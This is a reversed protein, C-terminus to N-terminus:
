DPQGIGRIFVNVTNSSGRGQVINLNPVAGQLGDINNAQLDRLQEEGFASVAVPVDQISETRRRATVQVTDLSAAEAQPPAGASAAHQATASLSATALAIALSLTSYNMTIRKMSDG